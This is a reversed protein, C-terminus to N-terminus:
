KGIKSKYEELEKNAEKKLERLVEISKEDKAEELSTEVYKLVDELHRDPKFNRDGWDFIACINGPIYSEEYDGYIENVQERTKEPVIAEGPKRFRLHTGDELGFLAEAVFLHIEFDPWWERFRKEWELLESCGDFAAAISFVVLKKVSHDRRRLEDRVEALARGLTSGTAITDGMVIVGDEPLPDFNTYSIEARFDEGSVRHRRAGVFCRPLYSNFVEEFAADLRYGLGGRLVVVECIDDTRLDKFDPSIEQEARLFIQNSEETYKRLESGWLLPNYIIKQAPNMRLIYSNDPLESHNVEYTEAEIPLDLKEILSMESM